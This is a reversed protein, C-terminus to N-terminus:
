YKRVAEPPWFDALDRTLAEPFYDYYLWDQSDHPCMNFIALRGGSRLVRFAEEVYRWRDMEDLHEFMDTTYVVHFSSETFDELGVRHLQVLRVNNVDRLRRSAYALMNASIDAGTWLRCLPALVLGVRGVGCGIELVEDQAGISVLELLDHLSKM